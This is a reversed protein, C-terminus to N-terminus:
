LTLNCHQLFSFLLEDNRQVRRIGRETAQIVERLTDGTLNAL